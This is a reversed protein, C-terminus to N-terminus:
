KPHAKRLQNLTIAALFVSVVGVVLYVIHPLLNLAFSFFLIGTSVLALLSVEKKYDFVVKGVIPKLPIFYYFVIMLTMLLGADGLIKFGLMYLGAFPLTLTLLILLKSLIILGKKKNSIQGSQYRTIIPSGTPFRFLLSFFLLLGLGYLWLKVQRYVRCIRACLAEAFVEAVNEMLVALFVYPIVVVLVSPNLFNPLGNTEIFCFVITMIVASISISVLEGKSILPVEEMAALEKKDITEFVNEGYLKLFEKLWDPIPLGSVASNLAQGVAGSSAALASAAAVATGILAVQAVVSLSRPERASEEGAMKMEATITCSDTVRNGAKDEVTLTVTYTGPQTYTHTATIGTGTTGDGFDWEYSVIGVNDRSESADFTVISGAEVRMDNGADPEPSTADPDVLPIVTVDRTATDTLGDNNTVTLTVTYTGASSYSHSATIGTGTTGDGFNWAYNVITGDPDSSSSADFNVTEDVEPSAPSITFSAHPPQNPVATVTATTTDTDTAGDYDTVTLTVTYTGDQSYSHTPNQGTSSYGDGFDWHYNVITGDTDYSGSADFSIVEGINVPSSPSYTFYAVPPQNTGIVTIITTDTDTADDDDTVTLTVTYDGADSYSHYVNEGSGTSDDGFDWEYSVISGDPDYSASANFTVTEGTYPASPSYTFSAAPPAGVQWVYPSSWEGSFYGDAPASDVSATGSNYALAQLTFNSATELSKPVVWVISSGSFSSNVLQISGDWLFENFVWVLHHQWTQVVEPTWETGNWHVITGCYGVTWGDDSSVMFVSSLGYGTPNTWNSWSTGNWRIIETGVAWGDSADVMFVSHLSAITPSTVTSWDTGDWHVITGGAGVAWGDDSSVMFVSSLGYGTPNTWNSWSTGNWRIITGGAGVAWGDNADVMSVSYLVRSTPSTVSSWSTGNWHIIMGWDGVTWGDDSSVMFVPSLYYDTPSTWNVSEGNQDYDLRIEYRRAPIASGTVNLRFYVYTEDDDVEVTSINIEPTDPVYVMDTDSIMLQYSSSGSASARFYDVEFFQILLPMVLLSFTLLWIAKKM